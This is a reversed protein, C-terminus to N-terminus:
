GLAKVIDDLEDETKADESRLDKLQMEMANLKRKEVDWQIIQVRVKLDSLSDDIDTNSEKKVGLFECAKDYSEKKGILQSALEVCVDVSNITNINREAVIGNTKWSPKPKAGMKEKKQEISKLLEKIKNDNQNAM